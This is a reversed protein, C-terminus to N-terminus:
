IGRCLLIGLVAGVCITKPVSWKRFLILYAGLLGIAVSAPQVAGNVIYNTWCLDFIVAWILGIVTPRVVTMVHNLAAGSKFREFFVAAVACLTLTPTLVGLNAALAGPIGAM